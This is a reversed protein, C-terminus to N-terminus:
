ARAEMIKELRAKQVTPNWGCKHCEKASCLVGSNKPCKKGKEYHATKVYELKIAM